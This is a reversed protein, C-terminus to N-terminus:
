FKQGGYNYTDKQNLQGIKDAQITSKNEEHKSGSQYNTTDGFNIGTNGTGSVNLNGMNGIFKSCNQFSQDVKNHSKIVDEKDVAAKSLEAMLDKYTLLKSMKTEVM